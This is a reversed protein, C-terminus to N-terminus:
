CCKSSLAMENSVVESCTPNYVAIANHVQRLSENLDVDSYMMRFEISESLKAEKSSDAKIDMLPGVIKEEVKQLEVGADWSSLSTSGADKRRKAISEVALDVKKEVEGVATLLTTSSAEVVTEVKKGVEDMSGLIKSGVSEVSTGITDAVMDVKKEIAEVVKDERSQVVEM